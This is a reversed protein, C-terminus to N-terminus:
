AAVAVQYIAALSGAELLDPLVLGRGTARELAGALALLHVSDWGAVEDLSREADASTVELGLEDRVLTLFDDITTM